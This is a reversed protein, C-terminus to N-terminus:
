KTRDVIRGFEDILVTFDGSTAIFTVKHTTSGDTFDAMLQRYDCIIGHKYHEDGHFVNYAIMLDEDSAVTADWAQPFYYEITKEDGEEWVFLIECDETMVAIFDGKDTDLHVRVCTDEGIKGLQLYQDKMIKAGNFKPNKNMEACAAAQFLETGAVPIIPWHILRSDTAGEPLVPKTQGENRNATPKEDRNITPVSCLYRDTEIDIDIGSIVTQTEPNKEIPYQIEATQTTTETKTENEKSCGFFAAAMAFTLLICTIKKM